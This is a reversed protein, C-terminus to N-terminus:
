RFIFPKKEYKKEKCALCKGRYHWTFSQECHREESCRKCVEMKLYKKEKESYDCHICHKRKDGHDKTCGHPCIEIDGFPSDRYRKWTM